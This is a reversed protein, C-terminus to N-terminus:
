QAGVTGVMVQTVLFTSPEAHKIFLSHRCPDHTPPKQQSLVHVPVQRDQEFASVPTAFPSHLGTREPPEDLVFHATSATVHPWSPVQSPLPPQRNRLAVVPQRVAAQALPVSVLAAVQSPAPLQGAGDVRAQLGNAQLPVAQPAFQVVLLWHAAFAAQRPVVQV